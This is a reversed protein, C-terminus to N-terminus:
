HVNGASNDLVVKSLVAADSTAPLHSCFGIGVYFPGDVHLVMPPGAQHMPEGKLSVFLSFSDGRKELGIRM